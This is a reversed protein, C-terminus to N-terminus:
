RLFSRLWLPHQTGVRSAATIGVPASLPSSPAVGSGFLTELPDTEVSRPLAPKMKWASSEQLVDRHHQSVLPSQLPCGRHARGSERRQALLSLALGGRVTLPPEGEQPFRHSPRVMLHPDTTTKRQVHFVTDVQNLNSTCISVNYHSLFQNWKSHFHKLFSRYPCFVPSKKNNHSKWPRHFCRSTAPTQVTLERQLM